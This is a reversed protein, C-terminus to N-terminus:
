RSDNIKIVYIHVVYVVLYNKYKILRLTYAFILFLRVNGNFVASYNGQSVLEDFQDNSIEAKAASFIIRCYCIM